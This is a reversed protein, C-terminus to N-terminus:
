NYIDSEDTELGGHLYYIKHQKQFIFKLKKVVKAITISTQSTQERTHLYFLQKNFVDINDRKKFLELVTYVVDKEKEDLFYWDIKKEVHNVYLDIFHRLEANTENSVVDKKVRRDTDVEELDGKRKIDKYNKMNLQILYRKAITGFYSYAKGQDPSYLPLKNLLFVVVEHKLDEYNDTGNYQFKFTHIINEALKHISYNIKDNFIKNKFIANDSENYAIIAAETDDTFYNRSKKRKRKRLKGSKTYLELDLEVKEKKKRSM